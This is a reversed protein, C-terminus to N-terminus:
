YVLIIIWKVTVPPFSAPTARTKISGKAEQEM